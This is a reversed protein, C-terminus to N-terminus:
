LEYYCDLHWRLPNEDIYKAIEVYDRENRVVHDYYGRQWVPAHGYLQHIRKSTNMKIYGIANSIASRKRLPSEHIARPEDEIFLILHVHNPMIVYRDVTVGILQPINGIVTEVIKGQATLESKPSEHIAGVIPATSFSPEDVTGVIRSLTNKRNYTCFTLFYAGQTNYDYEQLRLPKRNKFEM